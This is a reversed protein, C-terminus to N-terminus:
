AVSTDGLAEERRKSELANRDAAKAVELDWNTVLWVVLYEGIGVIFLGVVQGARRDARASTHQRHLTGIWLGQLGLTTHFALTVGLPLALVYYAVQV